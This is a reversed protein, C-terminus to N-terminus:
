LHPRLDDRRLGHFGALWELAHSPDGEACYIETRNCTSLIAAEAAPRATVLEKLADGLRDGAFAVRERVALPASAHNLGLAFLEM